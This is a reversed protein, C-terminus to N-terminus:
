VFIEGTFVLKAAGELEVNHYIGQKIKDFNVKLVGGPVTVAFSTKHPQYKFSVAIASAVAGTGCALTEAEVGREYTRVNIAGESTIEVFNVNTGGSNKFEDSYRIEAGEEEVDAYGVFKVFRIYHPVGTNLYLDDGYKVVSDVDILKIKVVGEGDSENIIEASHVGDMSNFVTKNDKILGLHYAFMTICRGGNGCMPVQSADSNFYRMYFDYEDDRELMMLGDAGVGTNRNCIRKIDDSSISINADRNDILVFDNGTGQYKYFKMSNM